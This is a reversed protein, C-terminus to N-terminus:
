CSTTGTWSTATANRAPWNLVHALRVTGILRTALGPVYDKAVSAMVFSSGAVAFGGPIPSIVAGAAWGTPLTAVTQTGASNTVARAQSWQVKAQLNPTSTTSINTVAVNAVALTLGAPNNPQLMAAATGFTATMDSCSMSAARATLDAATRSATILKRDLDFGPTITVLGYYMTLMLPLILAFEVIAAGDTNASATAAFRRIATDRM